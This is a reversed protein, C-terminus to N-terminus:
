LAKESPFEESSVPDHNNNNQSNNVIQDMDKIRTRFVNTVLIAATGLTWVWLIKVGPGRDKFM